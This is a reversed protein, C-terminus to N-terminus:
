ELLKKLTYGIVGFLIVNMIGFMLYSVDVLQGVSYPSFPVAPPSYVPFGLILLVALTTDGIMYLVFLSGKMVKGMQRITGGLLLGGAVMTSYDLFTWYLNIGSEVFFYPLHFMIPPIVAPIALLKNFRFLGLGALIGAFYLSYHSLMLVLPNRPLAQLTFPNVTIVIIVLSSVVYFLKSKSNLM